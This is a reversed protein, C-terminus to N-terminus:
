KSLTTLSRIIFFNFKLLFIDIMNQKKHTYVAMFLVYGLGSSLKSKWHAGESLGLSLIINAYHIELAVNASILPTPLTYFQQEKERRLKWDARM